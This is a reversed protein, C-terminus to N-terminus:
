LHRAYSRCTGRKVCASPGNRLEGQKVEAETLGLLDSLDGVRITRYAKSVLTLAREQVKVVPFYLM